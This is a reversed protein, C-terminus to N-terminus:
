SVPIGGARGSGTWQTRQGQDRVKPARQFLAILHDRTAPLDTREEVPQRLFTNIRERLELARDVRPNSGSVYAGINLLDQAEKLAALADRLNLAAARHEPDTLEPMLRSVSQLIDVPPYHGQAALERSLVVHGDLIARAADAIPENLDDGEVLITYFGTISGRHNITGARELVQPLLAFVSPPYGRTTPPEGVALGIERQAMAFRTLSDMMFLVDRGLDRFYEAIATAVYAAQRRILPPEDSTAVVLISRRLGEPGLDKAIFDNVERGREGILGIVNLDAATHRAIMGLLTSKGVGSGSFIGVRQGKGCTLPGDIARIGTTFPESIRRRDLPPVPQRHLPVEAEVAPRERGDIPHALGNFVRGVFGKGVPVRFPRGTVVVESGPGIGQINGFPMLLLRDEKFGVVEAQIPGRGSRIWCVEGVSARLGSAEIILGVVQSVRGLPRILDARALRARYPGLEITRERV